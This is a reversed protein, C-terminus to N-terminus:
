KGNLWQLTNPYFNEINSQFTGKTTRGNKICKILLKKLENVKYPYVAQIKELEGADNKLNFLLVM